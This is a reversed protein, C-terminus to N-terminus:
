TRKENLEIEVFATGIALAMDHANMNKSFNADSWYVFNVLVKESDNKFSEPIAPTEGFGWRVQNWRLSILFLIQTRVRVISM